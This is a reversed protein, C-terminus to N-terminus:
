LCFARKSGSPQCRPIRSCRKLLRNHPFLLCEITYTAWVTTLEVRLVCRAQHKEFLNAGYREIFEHSEAERERAAPIARACVFSLSSIRKAM